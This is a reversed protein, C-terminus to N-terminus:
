FFAEGATRSEQDDTEFLLRIDRPTLVKSMGTPIKRLSLRGIQFRKLRKVRYGFAEFLRRIERKKGHHLHLEWDTFEESRDSRIPYAKEVKLTEGEFEIGKLLLPGKARPYPKNLSVHYRKVVLNAPHMLRNALEGDTTLILLGESDLDLRGACLFRRNVLDPPLLDYITRNHHPDGHSCLYGKPKHMALTIPKAAEQQVLKGRIVVQDRGPEVKQGLIAPQGNVKVEGNQILEEAMRRSCVGASALFKQLRVGKSSSEPM